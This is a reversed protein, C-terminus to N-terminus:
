RTEAEIRAQRLREAIRGLKPHGPQLQRAIRLQEAAEDLQGLQRLAEVLNARARFYGPHRALARQYCTAARRAQGLELYANGLAVDTGLNALLRRSRELSALAEAPQGLELHTLGLLLWAEGSGPDLHRAHELLAVRRAPGAARAQVMARQALWHGLGPPLLLVVGALVTAHVIMFPRGLPIRATAAWVWALLAVV